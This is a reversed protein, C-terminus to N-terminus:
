HATGHITRAVFFFEPLPNIHTMKIYFSTAHTLHSLVSHDDPSGEIMEKIVM